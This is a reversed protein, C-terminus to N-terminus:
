KFPIDKLKLNSIGTSNMDQKQYSRMKMCDNGDTQPFDMDPTSSYTSEETDFTFTDVNSSSSDTVKNSSSESVLSGDATAETTGEQM